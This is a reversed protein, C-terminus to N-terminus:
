DKTSYNFNLILYCDMFFRDLGLLIKLPNELDIIFRDFLVCIYKNDIDNFFYKKM